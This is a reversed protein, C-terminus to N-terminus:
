GPPWLMRRGGLLHLHLHYVAQGGYSNCNMLVRYGDTAIDFETALNKAVYVLHGLLNQDKETIDNITAIHRRPIILKHVPAKPYLDDYIIKTPIDVAIIKCFICDPKM